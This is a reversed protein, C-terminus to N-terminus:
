PSRSYIRGEILIGANSQVAIENLTTALGGRTPDRLVHINPSMEADGRDSHNLPAVAIGDWRWRGITGHDGIGAVDGAKANARQRQCGGRM